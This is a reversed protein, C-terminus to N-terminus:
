DVTVNIKGDAFLLKLSEGSRIGAASKLVVSHSDTVLSYGRSLISRPDAASIRSALLEVKQQMSAIRQSFCLKLRQSYSLLQQEEACLADVFRDALATPTKVYDCAVMDAVHLDRDHGIATLVPLPCLAIARCLSYDDFCALDLASGGGRLILAADFEEARLAVAELAAAISQPAEKGQMAAPFLETLFAFSYENQHLHRQFDGYGAADSASIVAFRRAISPVCLGKQLDMLGEKELAEITKRRQLAADGLSFRPEIDYVSLTLGYLESYTVSVNVLVEMGQELGKGSASSFKSAIIAYRSRWIVAKVKAVLLGGESQCLDMYCHGGTKAQISAIEARVWVRSPFIESIGEKLCNQLDLLDICDLEEM